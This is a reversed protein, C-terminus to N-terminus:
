KWAKWNIVSSITTKGAGFLVALEKLSKGTKYLKRIEKAKKYNLVCYSRNQAQTQRTAWRCNEKCYNKSSDKRDITMRSHPKDGMDERFNQFIQWRECVEIGKKGYYKYDEARINQCRNKMMLWSNYISTKKQGHNRFNIPIHAQVDGTRHIRMKHASCLKGNRETRNNCKLVECIIKSM